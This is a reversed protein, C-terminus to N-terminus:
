RRAPLLLRIVPAPGSDPAVLRGGEALALSRALALGIGHGNRSAGRAFAREADDGFGLGEDGVEISIWDGRRRVSLDIAGAGHRLANDLLVDVIECVVADHAVVYLQAGDVALRLRRGEQALRPRWDAELRDALAVVDTREESRPVDRAVALLTAITQELREVQRLASAPDVATGALEAAELEIRLAALPTRLQHSADASFARERDVLDGLREATAALALAVSDVEPVSSRPARVTFDGGGLRRAALALRELPRSLGRGLLLAATLAAVMVAAGLAVLLLWARHSDTVAGAGSRGAVVVGTVREGSLLPVAAVIGDDFTKVAPRGTDLAARAVNRDHLGPRGALLRGGRDYVARRDSGGPLEIRDGSRAGIDIRRTAAVTDRELRLLDEDRYVQRLAIGLPVAFLVIAGAAVTAIAVVLRRRM